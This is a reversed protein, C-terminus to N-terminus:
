AAAVVYGIRPFHVVVKGARADTRRISVRRTDLGVLEGAVPIKGYDDPTVTVHQGARLGSPDGPDVGQAPLPTSTRAVDLADAASMETRQGHGLAHVRGEWAAMRTFPALMQPIAAIFGRTMWTVYYATADALGPQAGGLFARGDALQDEILQAHALVQAFLHPARPKFGDFDMHTFFERRDQVLDAPL